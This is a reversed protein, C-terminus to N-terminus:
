SYAREPPSAKCIQNEPMPLIPRVAEQFATGSKDGRVSKCGLGLPLMNLSSHSQLGKSLPMIAANAARVRM